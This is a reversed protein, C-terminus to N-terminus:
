VKWRWRATPCRLPSAAAKGTGCSSTSRRGTPPSTALRPSSNGGYGPVLTFQRRRRKIKKPTVAWGGGTDIRLRNPDFRHDIDDDSM